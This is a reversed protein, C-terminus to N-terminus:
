SEQRDALANDVPEWELKEFITDVLRLGSSEKSTGSAVRALHYASTRPTM